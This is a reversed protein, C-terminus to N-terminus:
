NRRLVWKCSFEWSKILVWWLWKISLGLGYKTEVMLVGIGNVLKSFGPGKESVGDCHAWTLDIVLFALFM